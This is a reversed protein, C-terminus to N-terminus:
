TPTSEPIGSQKALESQRIGRARLLDQMRDRLAGPLYKQEM